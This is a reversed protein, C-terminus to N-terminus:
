LTDYDADLPNEWIKEFVPESLIACDATLASFDDAALTVVKVKTNAKMSM